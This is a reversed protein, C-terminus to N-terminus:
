GGLGVHVAHEGNVAMVFPSAFMEEPRDGVVLERNAFSATMAMQAIRIGPHQAKLYAVLQTRGPLDGIVFGRGDFAGALPDIFRTISDICNKQLDYASEMRDCELWLRVNFPVFRPQCVILERGMPVIAGKELLAKELRNRMAPFIHAGSEYEELLVAVCVTNPLVEGGPGVGGVCKVRRVGGCQTSIVDYFDRNTVARDRTRLLAATFQVKDENTPADRGGYAPVPNNVSSIGHIAEYLMDIKGADVNAVSGHYAQYIVRVGPEGFRPPYAALAHRSITVRGAGLDLGCFRGPLHAEGQEWRVWNDEGPDGAAENVYVEASYLNQAALSLTVSSGDELWFDESSTMINRVAATNPYMAMVQPLETDRTIPTYCVLRLWHLEQGFLGRREISAPIIAQLTGSNLLGDTGDVTKVHTFVGDVCVEVTFDFRQEVSNDVSLYLSAPTGAPNSEFGIYLCPQEHENNYWPVFATDSDLSGLLDREEFNNVSVLACPALPNEEFSCSMRMHEVIPCNQLSPTQYLGEARMLRLRLRPGGAEEASMVDAPVEFPLVIEGERLGDFLSNEKADFLRQWGETSLYEFVAEECKVQVPEMSYPDRPQRMIVKYDVVTEFEPLNIEYVDFHLNFRIEAAAGPHDMVEPCEIDCQAMLQMPRGFLPLYEASMLVGDNAV